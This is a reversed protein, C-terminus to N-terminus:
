QFVYQKMREIAEQLKALPLAVNIRICNEAYFMSGDQWGIGVDWGKKLINELNTQHIRCYESTDLLVMYTGEVKSFSLGDIQSFYDCIYKVNNQIVQNLEDVWQKGEESYAGILAHMSLVNMNNYHTKKSHNRIIDRLERNFVVHYSGILGALNFTKSPAYFTITHDKAYQSVTHLPIHTHNPSVIDSWIEDSIITCNYKEYVEVLKVLEENEWVRGTPNHPNCMISVQINHKEINSAMEEYDIEYLGDSNKILKSEILQYGNDYLINKFGIYLPSDVLINKSELKLANLANVIGGLVGNEYGIESKSIQTNYRDKHWKIIANYYENSNLFYGYIPHTMRKSIANQIEPLVAFNMDAVWMPIVDFGEKPAGPSFPPFKGVGDVAINDIGKRDIITTFDYKM